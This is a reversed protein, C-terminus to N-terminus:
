VTELAAHTYGGGAFSSLARLSYNLLTGDCKKFLCYSYAFLFLLFAPITKIRLKIKTLGPRWITMVIPYCGQSRTRFLTEFSDVHRNCINRTFYSYGCDYCSHSSWPM